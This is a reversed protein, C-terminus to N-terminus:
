LISTISYNLQVARIHKQCCMFYSLMAVPNKKCCVAYYLADSQWRAQEVLNAHKWPYNERHQAVTVYVYMYLAYVKTTVAKM